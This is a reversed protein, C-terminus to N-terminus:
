PGSLNFPPPDTRPPLPVRSLRAPGPRDPRRRPDWFGPVTQPAAEVKPAGQQASAGVFFGAALVAALAGALAASTPRFRFPLATVFPMEPCITRSKGAKYVMGPACRPRLEKFIGS